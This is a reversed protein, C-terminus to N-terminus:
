LLATLPAYRLRTARLTRSASTPPEFGRAGINTDKNSGTLGLRKKSTYERQYLKTQEGTLPM